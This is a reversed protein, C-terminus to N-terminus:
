FLVFLKLKSWAIARTEKMYGIVMEAVIKEMVQDINFLNSIPRLMECNEPPYQKPAPTVTEFKYIKPWQGTRITVNVLDTVPIYLYTSFAPIDGPATAKKTKIQQLYGKVTQLSIVPISSSPFSPIDIQDTKIPDYQNSINSFADAIAEAQDKDSLHAIEEVEVRETKQQDYNTIRKLKTYWQSSKATIVDDIMRKKFNKKETAVKKLFARQLQKYKQSSRNKRYERKKKRDLEKLKSTFWPKDDSAIKRIKQPCYQDLKTMILGQLIEAKENSSPASLITEWKEAKIWEHFANIGSQPMPRVKVERYTRVPQPNGNDIPKMVPIWHDSPVGTKDPDPALPPLVVPAQYFNALTTIIAPKVFLIIWIM